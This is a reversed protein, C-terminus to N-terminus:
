GQGAARTVTGLELSDACYPCLTWGLRVSKRCSPCRKAFRTHCYPCLVFDKEIERGCAPCPRSDESDLPVGSLAEAELELAREEILTMSPRILVYVVLGVLPFALNIVMAVIHFAANESRARADKLAWYALALWLVGGLLIAVAIFPGLKSLM